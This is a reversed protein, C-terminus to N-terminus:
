QVTVRGKLYTIAEKVAVGLSKGSKHKALGAEFPIIRDRSVYEYDSQGFFIVFCQDEALPGLECRQRANPTSVQAPWHAFKAFKAFVVGDRAAQAVEGPSLVPRLSSRGTPGKMKKPPREVAPQTTSNDTMAQADTQRSASRTRKKIGPTQQSVNPGATPQANSVDASAAAVQSDWAETPQGRFAQSFDATAAAAQSEPAETPQDGSAQPFDAMATVAQSDPSRESPTDLCPIPQQLASPAAATVGGLSAPVCRSDSAKPLHVHSPANSSMRQPIHPTPMDQKHLRPRSSPKCPQTPKLLVDLLFDSLDDPAATDWSAKWPDASPEM